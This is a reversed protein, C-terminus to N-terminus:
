GEAQVSRVIQAWEQVPIHPAEYNGPVGSVGAAKYYEQQWGPVLVGHEVLCKSIGAFQNIECMLNENPLEFM